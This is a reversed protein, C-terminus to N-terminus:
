GKLKQSDIYEVLYKAYAIVFENGEFLFVDNGNASLKRAMELAAKFRKFKAATWHIENQSM